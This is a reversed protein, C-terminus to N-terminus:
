VLCELELIYWNGTVNDTVLYLKAGTLGVNM